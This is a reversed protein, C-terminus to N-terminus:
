SPRDSINVNVLVGASASGNVAVLTASKGVDIVIFDDLDLTAAASARGTVAINTSATLGTIAATAASLIVAAPLSASSSLRNVPTVATGGAATGTDNLRWTYQDAAAANIRTRQIVLKRTTSTNQIYLIPALASTVVQTFSLNYSRGQTSDVERSQAVAAFGYGDAGSSIGAMVLEGLAASRVGIIQM